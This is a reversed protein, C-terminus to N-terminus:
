YTGNREWLTFNYQAAAKIDKQISIGTVCPFKYATTINDEYSRTIVRVAAALETVEYFHYSSYSTNQAINYKITEEELAITLENYTMYQGNVNYQYCVTENLLIPQEAALSCSDGTCTGNINSTDSIPM